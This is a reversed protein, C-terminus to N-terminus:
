KCAGVRRCEQYDNDTLEEDNIPISVEKGDVIVTNNAVDQLYEVITKPYAYMVGSKKIHQLGFSHGIEHLITSQLRSSSLYNGDRLFRIKMANSSYMGIWAGRRETHYKYLYSNPEVPVIVCTMAGNKEVISVQSKNSFENWRKSAEVIQTREYETVQSSIYFRGKCVNATCGISLVALSFLLIIIYKM